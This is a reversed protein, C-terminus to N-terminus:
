LWMRGQLTGTESSLALILAQVSCRCEAELEALSSRRCRSEPVSRQSNMRRASMRMAKKM